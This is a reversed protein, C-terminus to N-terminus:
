TEERRWRGGPGAAARLTVTGERDTRAIGIGSSRLRGLVEPAPHGYRNRRGASIVVLEPRVARLLEASTSTGSGHHGAKLVAARLTEGHRAALLREVEAGADGTLLLSFDRFRVHAVASIQNAEAPGDLSRGEPWFFEMRVGDLELVRGARAAHWPIGRAEVERLVDLYDAKGVALGPEVVRGVPMGRLVAPAGGIHDLDPHTLVLAELRRAGHARLFPLVRREGADFGRGRPGADVLIWRGAPTRLAVADGQGVDIFHVELEGGSVAAAGGALLLFSAAAGVATMVRVAPRLRAAMRLALLLGFAGVLWVGWPPRAVSVHGFPVGSALAAVRDLADLAAGAGDAVLRALPFALPALLVSGVVGALAMAMLPIAPLNALVAVPAVQGFHHATIPATALFAAASMGTAEAIRWAVPATRLRRPAGALLARRGALIGMVGAFSLQFGVDLVVLPEVATIALAAAAVVPLYASPRQLVTALLGLGLMIGSRVASAPAGIMALYLAVSFLTLWAVRERPLRLLAGLLLAIGALLGVHSGSIALLHVLGSRTFRDRVAPDVRERRGLLLAEALPGHRPFLRRLLDDTAGRLALLPDAIPDPPELRLLSDGAVFGAFAADRPWASRVASSSFRVWEGSLSLRAGARAAPVGEPLRIRVTGACVGRPGEMRADALPLLPPLDAAAPLHAAALVGSVRVPRADALLARCDTAAGRASLAGLAGGSAAFAVLLVIEAPRSRLGTRRSGLLAVGSAGLAAVLLPLPPPAARLAPLLGGLFALLAAVLPHSLHIMGAAQPASRGRDLPHVAAGTM